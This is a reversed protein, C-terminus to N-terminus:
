VNMIDFQVCASYMVFRRWEVLREGAIQQQELLPGFGRIFSRSNDWVWLQPALSHWNKGGLWVLEIFMFNSNGKCKQLYIINSKLLFIVEYNQGPPQKLEALAKMIVHLNEDNQLEALHGNFRKCAASAARWSLPLNLILHTPTLTMMSNNATNKSYESENSYSYFLKVTIFNFM